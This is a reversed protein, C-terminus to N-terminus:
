ASAIVSNGAALALGAGFGAFARVSILLAVDTIYASLINAAIAMLTGAIAITRRPVRNIYPSILLSSVMALTFEVSLILGTTGETLGLGDMMAGMLFPLMLLTLLGVGYASAFASLVLSRHSIQNSM